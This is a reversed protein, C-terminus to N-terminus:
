SSEDIRGVILDDGVGKVAVKQAGTVVFFLGDCFQALCHLNKEFVGNPSAARFFQSLALCVVLKESM